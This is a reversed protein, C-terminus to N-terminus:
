RTGRGRRSAVLHHVVGVVEQPQEGLALDLGRLAHLGLDGVVVRAVQAAVVPHVLGRALHELADRADLEDLGLPAALLAEAAAGAARLHPHLLLVAGLPDVLAARQLEDLVPAATIADPQGKQWVISVSPMLPMSSSSFRGTSCSSTASSRSRATSNVALSFLELDVRNTAPKGLRQMRLRAPIQDYGPVMHRFRYLINNMGMISAAAVADDLVAAEVRGRAAETIARQLDPHDAAIACAVATGWTQAPTLSSEGLVAKVNLKLDKAAEPLRELLADLDSM